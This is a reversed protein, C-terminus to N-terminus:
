TQPTILFKKLFLVGFKLMQELTTKEPLILKFCTSSCFIAGSPGPAHEGSFNKFNMYQLPWKLAIQVSKSSVKNFNKAGLKSHKVPISVHREMFRTECGVLYRKTEGQSFVDEKICSKLLATKKVSTKFMKVVKRAVNKANQIASAKVAASASLNLCHTACYFYFALPSENQVISTVGSRKSAMAAAGDCSQDVCFVFNYQM